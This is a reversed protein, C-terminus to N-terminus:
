MTEVADHIFIVIHFLRLHLVILMCLEILFLFLFPFIFVFLFICMRIVRGIIRRSIFVNFDFDSDDLSPQDRLNNGDTLNEVYTVDVLYRRFKLRDIAGFNVNFRRYLVNLYIYQIDISLSPLPIM